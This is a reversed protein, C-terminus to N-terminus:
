ALTVGLTNEDQQTVTSQMLKRSRERDIWNAVATHCM